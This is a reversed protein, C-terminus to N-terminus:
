RTTIGAGRGAEASGPMLRQDGLGLSRVMQALEAASLKDPSLTQARLHGHIELTVLGHLHGWIPLALAM